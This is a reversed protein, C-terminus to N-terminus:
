QLFLVLFTRVDIGTVPIRSISLRQILKRLALLSLPWITKETNEKPQILLDSLFEPPIHTLSNIWSKPM